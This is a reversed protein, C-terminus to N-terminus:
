KDLFVRSGCDSVILVGDSSLRDLITKLRSVYESYAENNCSIDKLIDEGIHNITNHMVIIDFANPDLLTDVYDRHFNIREADYNQKMSDYQEFMLNNSGEVIPDVVWASCDPSLNLAYFSAIGNGGGIDLIKKGDLDLDKYIYNSFYFDYGKSRPIGAQSLLIDFTKM